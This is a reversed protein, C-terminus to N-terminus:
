LPRAAKPVLDTKNWLGCSLILWTIMQLRPIGKIFVLLRAVTSTFEVRLFGGLCVSTIFSVLCFFFFFAGPM